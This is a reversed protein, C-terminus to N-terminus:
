CQLEAEGNQSADWDVVFLSGWTWSAARHNEFRDRKFGSNTELVSSSKLKLHGSFQELHRTSATCLFSSFLCGKKKPQEKEKIFILTFPTIYLPLFASCSGFFFPFFYVCTSLAHCPMRSETEPTFLSLKSVMIVYKFWIKNKRMSNM